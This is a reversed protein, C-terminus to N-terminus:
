VAERHYGSRAIRRVSARYGAESMSAVGAGDVWRNYFNFLACVSIADFIAQDTWGAHRLAELGAPGVQGAARNVKELFAFLAREAESIPATRFDALVAAVLAPSGLLEAAGASHCGM